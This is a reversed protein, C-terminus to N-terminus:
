FKFKVAAGIINATQPTAGKKADEKFEAMYYADLSTTKGLAASIGVAVEYNQLATKEGNCDQFIEASAYPNIKLDTLKWPSSIKLRNRFRTISKANSPSDYNRSEFRTRDEFKWGAITHSLSVNLMPRYEHIWDVKASKRTEAMRFTPAISLWDNVKYNLGIDYEGYYYLGLDDNFRQETAIDVRFGGGVDFTAGTGLRSQTDVDAANLTAIGSLLIAAISSNISKHTM